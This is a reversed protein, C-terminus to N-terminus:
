CETWFHTPKNKTDLCIVGLCEQSNKGFVNCFINAATSPSDIADFDFKMKKNRKLYTEVVEMITEM